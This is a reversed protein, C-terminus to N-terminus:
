VPPSSSAAVSAHAYIGPTVQVVLGQDRMKALLHAVTSREKKLERAIEAPAMPNPADALLELIARREATVALDEANGAYYWIRDSFRLAHKAEEIDRGTVDLSGLEERRPRKVVLTADASGTVGHTGSVEEFVDTAAAKRTHHLLLLAVHREMGLRQLPALADYDEQYANGRGGTASPPRLKAFTDIAVLRVAPHRDLWAALAEVGGRGVAPWETRFHLGAAEQPVYGLDAEALREGRKKLRIQGDELALYLVECQHVAFHGLARAGLMVSVCLQYALWSKGVKPAGVLLNLGEWLLGDIICVPDPINMRALEEGTFTELMRLPQRGGNEQRAASELGARLRAMAGAPDDEGYGVEAVDMGLQIISRRAALRQVVRVCDATNVTIWMPDVLMSLAVRDDAASETSGSRRQTVEVYLTTFDVAVGRERLALMAEYYIRHPERYFDCAKLGSSVVVEIAEPSLLMSGLVAQEAEVSNPLGRMRAM